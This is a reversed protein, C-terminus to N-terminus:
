NLLRNLAVAGTRTIRCGTVNSTVLPLVVALLIASIAALGILRPTICISQISVAKRYLKMENMKYDKEMVEEIVLCLSM